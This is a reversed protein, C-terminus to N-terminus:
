ESVKTRDFRFAGKVPMPEVYDKTVAGEYTGHYVGDSEELVVKLRDIGYNKIDSMDTADSVTLALGKGGGDAEYTGAEISPLGITVTYPRKRLVILWTNVVRYCSDVALDDATLVDCAVTGTNTALTGTPAAAAPPGQAGEDTDGGCAVLCVSLVLCAFLTGRTM